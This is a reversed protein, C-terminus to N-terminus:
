KFYDLFLKSPEMAKKSHQERIMAIRTSIAEKNNTVNATKCDEQIKQLITNFDITALLKDQDAQPLPENNTAVTLYEVIDFGSIGSFASLKVIEKNDMDIIVVKTSAQYESGKSLTVKYDNITTKYELEGNENDVLHNSTDLKSFTSYIDNIIQQQTM